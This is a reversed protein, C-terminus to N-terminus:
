ADFRPRYFGMIRNKIWVSDLHELAVGTDGDPVHLVYSTGVFIGVHTPIGGLSVLVIDGEQAEQRSVEICRDALLALAAEARSRLGSGLDVKPVPYGYEEVLVDTVLQMCPHPYGDYRRTIYKRVEIV